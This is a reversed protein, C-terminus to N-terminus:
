EMEWNRSWKPMFWGKKNEFKRVHLSFEQWMKQFDDNYKEGLDAEATRLALESEARVMMIWCPTDHGFKVRYIDWEYSEDIGDYFEHYKKVAAAAEKEHGAKLYAFTWECYGNDKSQGINGSPHYSLDKMWHIFSHRMTSLDRFEKDADFGDEFFKKQLGGMKEFMGDLSAFIEFPMVWYFSNEDTRYTWFSLDGNHKDYLEFTKNQAQNFATMDSPSVFEEMVLYNKPIEAEQARTNQSVFGLILICLGILLSFKKM